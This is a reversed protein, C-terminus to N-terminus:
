RPLGSGIRRLMDKRGESRGYQLFRLPVIGTGPARTRDTRPPQKLRRRRNGLTGYNQFWVAPHTCVFFSQWGDPSGEAGAAYMTDGMGRQAARAGAAEAGVRAAEATATRALQSIERTIEPFRNTVNVTAQVHV